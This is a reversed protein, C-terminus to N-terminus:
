SDLCTPECMDVGHRLGQGTRHMEDRDNKSRNSVQRPDKSALMAVVGDGNAKDCLGFEDALATPRANPPAGPERRRLGPGRNGPVGPAPHPPVGPGPAGRARRSAGRQGVAALHAPGPRAPCGGSLMMRDAVPAKRVFSRQVPVVTLIIISWKHLCPITLAGIGYHTGQHTEM